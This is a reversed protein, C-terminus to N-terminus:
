LPRKLAMITPGEHSQGGDVDPGVREVDDDHGNTGIQRELHDVPFLLHHPQAVATQIPVSHRSWGMPNHNQTIDRILQNFYSNPGRHTSMISLSGGWTTVPFAVKFLARQDAHLAFEDMKVHGRKGALANPNSSLSYIRRGNSFEIVYASSNTARDFLMEGRDAFGIKMLDAWHRCDELQLRAQSEDRSSIFADLRAGKASVLIVLRYCNCWSFGTQRSKVLLKLPSDDNIWNCQSPYFFKELRIM